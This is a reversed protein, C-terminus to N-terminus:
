KITEASEKKVIQEIRKNNSENINILMENFQKMINIDIQVASSYTRQFTPVQNTNTENAFTNKNNELLKLNKAERFTHCGRYFLSYNNNYNVCKYNEKNTRRIIELVNVM